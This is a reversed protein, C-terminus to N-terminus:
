EGPGPPTPDRGVLLANPNRELEEALRAISTTAARADALLRELEPLTEVRLQQLGGTADSAAAYVSSSARSTQEAARQVAETAVAVRRVMDTLEASARASNALTRDANAAMAESRGALAHVVTELDRITRQLAARTEDDVLENIGRATESINTILASAETDLRRLLSPRTKIVPYGGDEDPALLPADRSGGELDLFAIGTLGQISLVAVTDHKIPAGQEIALVLRVRMPDEPDLGIERVFGVDVGRYKVPAQRNLGSVSETFYALYTDYSRGATGGSSIWLVGAVIALSFALVFAGVIAYNVKTEM